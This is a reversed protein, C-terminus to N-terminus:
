CLEVGKGGSDYSLPDSEITPVIFQMFEEDLVSDSEGSIELYARPLANELLMSIEAMVPDPEWLEQVQQDVRNEPTSRFLAPVGVFFMVFVVAVAVGFAARWEWSWRISTRPEEAPLSVRRRPSPSFREAMQGLRSLNKELRDKEARCQPCTSLHERLQHSLAAEDVLARVLQDEKLHIGYESSM